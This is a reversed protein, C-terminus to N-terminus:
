LPFNVPRHGGPTYLEFRSGTADCVLNKTYFDSPGHLRYRLIPVKVVAAM